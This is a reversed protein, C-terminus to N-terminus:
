KRSPRRTFYSLGVVSIHGVCHPCRKLCQCCGSFQNQFLVGSGYLGHLSWASIFVRFSFRSIPFAFVIINLSWSDHLLFKEDEITKCFLYIHFM